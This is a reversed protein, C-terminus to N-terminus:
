QSKIPVGADMLALSSGCTAAMSSSGNSSLDRLWVFLTLFDEPQAFGYSQKEALSGHGVERRSVGKLRQVETCFPPFNYFHMYRKTTEVEMTNMFQEMGPSKFNYSDFNPNIRQLLASGHTRPLIGVKIDIPRIEELKRGDPRIGDSM